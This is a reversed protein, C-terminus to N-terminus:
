ASDPEEPPKDHPEDIGFINDWQVDTLGTMIFERDSASLHGLAVQIYEGSQYRSWQEESIDLERTLLEGTIPNKRTIKM